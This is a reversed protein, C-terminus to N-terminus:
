ALNLQYKLKTLLNDGVIESFEEMGNSGVVNGANINININTGGNLKNNPIITGNTDPMFMEAGKEGVMYARNKSVSGGIAKGGGFISGVASSVASGVASAVSKALNLASRLTDVFGTVKNIVPQIRELINDFVSKVSSGFAILGNKVAEFANKIDTGIAKILNNVIFNYVDRIINLLGVFLAIAVKIIDVVVVFAGLLAGALIKVLTMLFPIYPQLAEWLTMISEWLSMVTNKIIEFVAKVTESERIKDVFEKIKLTAERVFKTVTVIATAVKQLPEPLQNVSDGMEDGKTAVNFLEQGFNKISPLANNFSELARAGFDVIKMKVPELITGISTMTDELQAKFARQRNALSDQTRAYDGIANKSQDIAIQYRLEIKEAETLTKLNDSLGLQRAKEKMITENVVIGLSKLNETEGLLGKRLKEVAEASGGEINSFSALDGGLTVINKTLNLAEDQAFGFGTLLDGTSAVMETVSKKSLDFSKALSQTLNQAEQQTDKFVVNMKSFNEGYATSLETTSDIIKKAGAIAVCAFATVGIAVKGLTAGVTKLTKSTTGLASDFNKLTKSAEDKAKLIIELTKNDAM